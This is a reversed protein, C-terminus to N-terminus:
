LGFYAKIGDIIRIADRLPLRVHRLSDQLSEECNKWEPFAHTYKVIDGSGIKKFQALAMDLAELETDSLYERQLPCISKFATDRCKGLPAFLKNMEVDGSIDSEIASKVQSAVPGMRMALYDAGTILRGYKRLHYRDALYITKLLYLKTMVGDGANHILHHLAQVITKNNM